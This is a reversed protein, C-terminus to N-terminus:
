RIPFRRDGDLWDEFLGSGTAPDLKTDPYLEERGTSPRITVRSSRGAWSRSSNKLFYLGQTVADVQDSFRGNPFATFEELFTPLWLADAKLKVRGAEVIDTITWAREIKSQNKLKIPKLPLESESYLTQVLSIGAGQAEILIKNPKHLSYCNKVARILDPFELRARYIDVIFYEEARVGITACVSYAATETKKYAIDWSQILGDLMYIDEYPYYEWWDRNFMQSGLESPNQQYMAAFLQPGIQDRINLLEQITYREPCLPEGPRRGAPDNDEAIAPLRIETWM